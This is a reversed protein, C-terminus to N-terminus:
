EKEELNEKYELLLRHGDLLMEFEYKQINFGAMTLLEIALMIGGGWLFVPPFFFFISVSGLFTLLCVLQTMRLKRRAALLEESAREVVKQVLLLRNAYDLKDVTEREIGYWRSTFDKLRREFLMKNSEHSKIKSSKKQEEKVKANLESLRLVLLDMENQAVIPTDESVILEKNM